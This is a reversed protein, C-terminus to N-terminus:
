LRRLDYITWSLEGIMVADINDSKFLQELNNRVM